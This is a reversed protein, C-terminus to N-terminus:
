AKMISWLAGAITAIGVILAIIVNAKTWITDPKDDASKLSQNQIESNQNLIFNGTNNIIQKGMNEELTIDQDKLYTLFTNKRENFWRIFEPINEQDFDPVVQLDGDEIALDGNKIQLDFDKTEKFWEKFYKRIEPKDLKVIKESVLVDFFFDAQNVRKEIKKDFYEEWIGDDHMEPHEAKVSEALIFTTLEDNKLLRYGIESIEYRTDTYVDGGYIWDVREVLRKKEIFLKLKEYQRITNETYPLKKGLGETLSMPKKQEMLLELFSLIYDAQEFLEM